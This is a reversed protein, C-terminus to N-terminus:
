YSRKLESLFENLPAFDSGVTSPLIGACHKAYLFDRSMPFGDRVAIFNDKTPFVGGKTPDEPCSSASLLVRALYSNNSVDHYVGISIQYLRDLRVFKDTTDTYGCRSFLNVYSVANNRKTFYFRVAPSGSNVMHEIESIISKLM